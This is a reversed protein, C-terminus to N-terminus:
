WGASSATAMPTVTYELRQECTMKGDSQHMAVLEQQRYVFQKRAELSKAQNAAVRGMIDDISAVQSFGASTAFLIWALGKMNRFVVICGRLFASLKPEVPAVSNGHLDPHHLRYEQQCGAAAWAWDGANSTADILGDSGAAVTEIRRESRAPEERVDLLLESQLQFRALVTSTRTISFM